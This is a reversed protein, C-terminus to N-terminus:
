GYDLVLDLGILFLQIPNMKRGRELTGTVQFVVMVKVAYLPGPEM